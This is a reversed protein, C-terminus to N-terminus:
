FYIKIVDNSRHEIFQQSYWGRIVEKALSIRGQLKEIAKAEMATAAMKNQVSTYILTQFSSPLINTPFINKIRAKYRMKEYLILKHFM